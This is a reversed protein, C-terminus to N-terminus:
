KKSECDCKEEDCLEHCKPCEFKTPNDFGEVCGCEPCCTAGEHSSFVEETQTGCHICVTVEEFETTEKEISKNLMVTIKEDNVWSYLHPEGIAEAYVIREELCSNCIEEGSPRDLILESREFNQRCHACQKNEPYSM